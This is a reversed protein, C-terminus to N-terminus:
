ASRQQTVPHQQDALEPWIRQWDQPFMAQRTVAGCTFQEIAAGHAVPIPKSGSAIKSVFSGPVNLHAALQKGRGKGDELWSKLQKMGLNHGMPCLYQLVRQFIGFNLARAYM